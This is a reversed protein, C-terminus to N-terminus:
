GRFSNLPIHNHTHKHARAARAAMVARTAAAAKAACWLPNLNTTDTTHPTDAGPAFYSGLNTPNRPRRRLPKPNM